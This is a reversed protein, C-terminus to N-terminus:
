TETPTLTMCIEDCNPFKPCNICEMWVKQPMNNKDELQFGCASFFEPQYTLAFFKKVGLGVGDEILAKVIKIGIGKRRYEDRIALTRVEALDEWMVHLAGMGVIADLDEAVIFDRINEYIHHRARSLMEGREAYYNAIEYIQEADSLMAKRYIM